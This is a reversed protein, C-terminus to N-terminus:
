ETAQVFRPLSFPKLLCDTVSSEFRELAFEPYASTFIVVPYKKLSRLIEFGTLRPMNIDLM